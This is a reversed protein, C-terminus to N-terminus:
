FLTLYIFIFIYTYTHIIIHSLKCLYISGDPNENYKLAWLLRRECVLARLQSSHGLTSNSSGKGVNHGVAKGVNHGVALSQSILDIM